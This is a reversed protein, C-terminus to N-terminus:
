MKITNPVQQSSIGPIKIKIPTKEVTVKKTQCKYGSFAIGVALIILIAKWWIRKLMEMAKLAFESKEM